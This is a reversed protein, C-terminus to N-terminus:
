QQALLKETWVDLALPKSFWYGQLLDCGKSKLYHYQAEHEVGEAVSKVNLAKSMNIIVDAITAKSNYDVIEDVFCKDIKLEAIPLEKLYSLSSYGTGFDDISFRFGRQNLQKMTERVQEIDSVLTTETLELIILEPPIGFLETTKTLHSIFDNHIIQRGSVNIAIQTRVGQQLIDQLLICVQEIVWNGIDIIADTEEAIPIFEGPSVFGLEQSHWRILAESSVFAGPAIFQPQLVLQLENSRTISVLLERIRKTREFLAQAEEGMYFRGGPANLKAQKSAFEIRHIISALSLDSVPSVMSGMSASAVEEVEDFYLPTQVCQLLNIEFQKRNPFFMQNDALPQLVVVFFSDVGNKYLRFHGKCCAQLQGAVHKIVRDGGAFGYRLNFHSLKDIDILACYLWYQHQVSKALLDRIEKEFWARNKLGTIRDTYAARYISDQAKIRESVDRVIAIFQTQEHFKMESLLLEMQFLDHNKRIAPLQRATGLISSKKTDFYEQVYKKYRSAHPEPLLQQFYLQQLEKHSYGFVMSASKNAEVIRGDTDITIVAETISDLLSSLYERELQATLLVAKERSIDEFAGYVSIVNNDKGLRPHGSTRIWKAQGNADVFQCEVQYSVGHTVAREFLQRIKDQDSKAYYTISLGASVPSDESLGHIHYIEKSWSLHGDAVRYEWAGAKTINGLEDLLDIKANLQATASFSNCRSGIYHAFVELPHCYQKLSKPQKFAAVLIALASGNHESVSVGMYAEIDMKQLFDDAPFQKTVHPECLCYKTLLVEESPTAVLDFSFNDMIGTRSVAVLSSGRDAQQDLAALFLYDAELWQNFELFRGSFHSFHEKTVQIFEETDTIKSHMIMHIYCHQALSFPYVYCYRVYACLYWNALKM